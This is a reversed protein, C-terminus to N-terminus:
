KHQFFGTILNKYAAIPSLYPKYFHRHTLVWHHIYAWAIMPGMSRRSAWALNQMYQADYGNFWQSEGPNITAICEPAYYLKGGARRIDLMFKNEEGGGNGTGSGMKVDFTVGCEAIKIKLFSIQLSSTSLLQRFRLPRDTSPYVKPTSLDNRTLAFAIMSADPMRGYAALIKQKIDDALTEDDDCLLCIANNPAHKIAMNRSRSLGRETTSIFKCHCIEGFKNTFDFEEIKDCDCQNVVVVDTQVNSRQLISHDTQHMCSILPVIQQTM